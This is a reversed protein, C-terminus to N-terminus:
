LGFKHRTVAAIALLGSGMLLLSGPEPVAALTVQLDEVLIGGTSSTIMLDGSHHKQMDTLLGLISVPKANESANLTVCMGFSDCAKGRENQTMSDLTLSVATVDRGLLSSLNFTISQGPNIENDLTNTLGLGVEGSGESKYYLGACGKAEISIRSSGDSWYTHSNTGLSKNPSTAFNWNYTTSTAAAPVTAAILVLVPFIISKM